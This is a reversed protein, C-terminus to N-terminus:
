RSAILQAKEILQILESRYGDDDIGKSLKSLQILQDYSINKVFPSNRLKMGFMAVSVAFQMETSANTFSTTTNSVALEFKISKSDTPKKYRVKVTLLENGKGLETLHLQQYLLDDVAASTENGTLLVEYIATVCHGAGIEGADKKDDNFDENNLLRNEYGILRYSKVHNPNFEIQIKVDKAVTFLTSGIEKVLVKKGELLQDIYHYNGNGKDALIEMTEDKLNGLGFGLVSLYVGSEREKEILKTLEHINTIGVNFDGDTALIVRNNGGEIFHERATTYALQIGAGGATSGGASLADIANLINIKHNGYTPELVLGAAGAYVVISVKDEPRLQKTLLKMCDKLLEIKDPSQMSGSVDILFVLNCAPAQEMKLEPAKLTIHILKHSTDWPSKSVETKISFPHGLNTHEIQYPFYNILEEIRVADIPPLQNNNLYRRAIAYSAKDVDISFTSLPESKTSKFQNEKIAAYTDINPLPTSASTQNSQVRVGDIYYATGDARAGRFKLQPLSRSDVGAATNAISNVNRQPLRVLEKSTKTMKNVGDPDILPKKSLILVDELAKSNSRKMPINQFTICDGTVVIGKIVVNKYGIYSLLIDYTDPVLKTFAYFGDEDTLVSAKRIGRIELNISAFDLPAKTSDNIVKGRIEGKLSQPNQQALSPRIMCSLMILVLFALPKM